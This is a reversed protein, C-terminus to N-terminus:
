APTMARHWEETLTDWEPGCCERCCCGNLNRLSFGHEVAWDDDRNWSRLVSDYTGNEPAIQGLVCNQPDSMNLKEQDVLERFNPVRQELEVIGRGIQEEFM